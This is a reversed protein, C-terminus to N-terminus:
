KRRWCPEEVDASNVKPTMYNKRTPTQRTNVAERPEVRQIGTVDRQGTTVVLIDGSIAM